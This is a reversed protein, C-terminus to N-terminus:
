FEAGVISPYKQNVWVRIMKPTRLEKMMAIVDNAKMPPDIMHRKKWWDRFLKTPYGGHEPFLHERFAQMGCYYTARIYDPKGEKKGVNYIVRDVEFMEVIPLDSKIIQETGATKFIKVKFEFEAGCNTCFRVKTHNYTGCSECIKVPVDGNGAERKKPIIPDNIPGLRPINRAFDLTLCDKKGAAIRTGRGLKQIHLPISMTPRLDIIFDIFPHDFGTTLKSFNVIARLSNAKFAKIAQDNYEPKQKSHVAACEINFDRLMAAIHEAHQIGSAFILWSRRNAGLAVAEKLAEFTIKAQDVAHELQSLVFEGKAVAVGEVSLETHTRKPVLPAIYGEAILTNFEELSTLDHIIDTFISGSTLLGMGMRFPTATLGIIKLNPNILKLTSLFTQYQSSEEDSILHAEDVFVLDRHGFREAVRSMSQVGGFVIPHYAQKKKLGASFIGAPADPWAIKMVDFNQSILTSVHTVIIFRQDPWVRMIREIFLAPICSKGTGTPYALLPNGKNGDAFYQWIRNLGEEQYPRPTIMQVADM